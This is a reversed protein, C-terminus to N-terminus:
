YADAYRYPEVIALVGQHDRTEARETLERDAKKKPAVSADELWQESTIARETAWVEFVERRGRLAGRVARRGYVLEPTM